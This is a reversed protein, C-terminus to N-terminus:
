RRTAVLTPGPGCPGPDAASMGARGRSVAPRHGPTWDRPTSRRGGARRHRPTPLGRAAPGPDAASMGAGSRSAEPTPPRRLRLRSTRSDSVAVGRLLWAGVPIGRRERPQHPSRVRIKRTPHIVGRRGRTPPKRPCARPGLSHRARARAGPLPDRSRARRSARGRRRRSPHTATAVAHAVHHARIIRISSSASRVEASGPPGPDERHSQTPTIVQAEVAPRGSAVAPRGCTPDQRDSQRPQGRPSAGPNGFSIAGRGGTDRSRTGRSM